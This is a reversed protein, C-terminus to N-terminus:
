VSNELSLAQNINGLTAESNKIYKKYKEFRKALDEQKNANDVEGTMKSYSAYKTHYKYRFIGFQEEDDEELEDILKKGEKFKQNIELQNQVKDRLQLEILMEVEVFFNEIQSTM